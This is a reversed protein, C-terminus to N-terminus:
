ATSFVKPRCARLSSGTSPACACISFPDRASLSLLRRRANSTIGAGSCYAEVCGRKGCGCLLGDRHVAIRGLEGANGDKGLVLHGGDWVGVGFGTSITVHALYLLSKDSTENGM